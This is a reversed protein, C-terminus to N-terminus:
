EKKQIKKALDMAEQVLKPAKEMCVILFALCMVAPGSMSELGRAIDFVKQGKSYGLKEALDEYSLDHKEKLDRVAKSYSM